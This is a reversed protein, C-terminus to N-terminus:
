ANRKFYLTITKDNPLWLDVWVETSDKSHLVNSVATGQRNPKALLMNISDQPEPMLVIPNLRRFKNWARAYGKSGPDFYRGLCGCRCGEEEGTYIQFPTPSGFNMRDFLTSEM